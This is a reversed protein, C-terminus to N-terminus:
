HLPSASHKIIQNVFGFIRNVTFLSTENLLEQKFKEPSSIDYDMPPNLLNTNKQNILMSGDYAFEITLDDLKNALQECAVVVAPELFKAANFESDTQLYFKKEFERSAPMFHQQWHKPLRTNSMVLHSTQNVAPFIVGQRYYHDYVTRTRTRSGGKGDSEQYTETRKNVYHHYVVSARMLGLESNFDIEKGWEINQSYNGRNFDVFKHEVHNLFTTGCDTMNYLHKLTEDRILNSLMALRKQRQFVTFICSFLTLLCLAFILLDSNAYRYFQGQTDLYFWYGISTVIAAIMGLYLPTHRYKLQHPYAIAKDLCETVVEISKSNSVKAQLKKIFQTLRKNNM